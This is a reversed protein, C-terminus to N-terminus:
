DGIIIFKQKSLIASGKTVTLTYTGPKLDNLVINCLCDNAQCDIEGSYIGAGSQDYIKYFCRECKESLIVYFNGRNPNPYIKINDSLETQSIGTAAKAQVVLSDIYSCGEITTLFIYYTCDNNIQITNNVIQYGGGSKIKWDYTYAVNGTATFTTDLNLYNGKEVTLEGKTQLEIEEPAKLSLKKVKILENVPGPIEGINLRYVTGRGNAGGMYTIGFITDGSMVFDDPYYGYDSDTFDFIKQYGTGDKKFRFLRGMGDDGGESSVGYIYSGQLMIKRAVGNKSTFSYLESFDTGDTRVRWLTGYDNQGGETTIGYIYDDILILSVPNIGSGPDNFYDMIMYDTADTSLRFIKVVGNDWLTGYIQNDAIFYIIPWLGYTDFLSRFETGDTKISFLYGYPQLSENATGYIITDKVEIDYYPYLFGAPFDFITKWDTGDVGTKFITGNDNSGRLRKTGYLFSGAAEIDSIPTNWTWWRTFGNGDTKMKIISGYGMTGGDWFNIFIFPAILEINTVFVDYSGDTALDFDYLVTMGKDTTGKTYTKNDLIQSSSVFCIMLSCLLLLMAKGPCDWPFGSRHTKNGSQTRM